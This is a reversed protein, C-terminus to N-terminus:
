CRCGYALLDGKPNFFETRTFALSKGILEIYFIVPTLEVIFVYECESAGMNTLVSKMHLIDGPKGGPRIFSTGIDTSVGTMFQGKTALALSGMTDTLSLILGGHVARM